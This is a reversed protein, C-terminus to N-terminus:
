KMGHYFKFSGGRQAAACLFSVAMVSEAVDLPLGVAECRMVLWIASSVSQRPLSSAWNRLTIM